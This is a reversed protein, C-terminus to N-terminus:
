KRKRILIGVLSVLTTLMFLMGMSKGCGCGKKAPEVTTDPTQNPAPTEEKLRGWPEKTKKPGVPIPFVKNAFVRAFNRKPM